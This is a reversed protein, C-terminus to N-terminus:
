IKQRQKILEAIDKRWLNAVDLATMGTEDAAFPDAGHNLLLEVIDKNGKLAAYGLLPEKDYYKANVDAGHHILAEAIALNGHICASFLPTYGIKTRINVDAGHSILFDVIQKHGKHSALMLPTLGSSERADPDTGAKILTMLKTLDGRFAARHIAPGFFYNTLSGFMGM